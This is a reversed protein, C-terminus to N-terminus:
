NNSVREGGKQPANLIIAINIQYKGKTHAPVSTPLYTSIRSEVAHAIAVRPVAFPLYPM